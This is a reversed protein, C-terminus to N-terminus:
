EPVRTFAAGDGNPGDEALSLTSATLDMV